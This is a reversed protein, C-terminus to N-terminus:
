IQVSHSRSRLLLVALMVIWYAGLPAMQLAQWPSPEAPIRGAPVMHEILWHGANREFQHGGALYSSPHRRCLPCM